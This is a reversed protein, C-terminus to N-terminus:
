AILHVVLLSRLFMHHDTVPGQSVEAEFRSYKTALRQRSALRSAADGRGSTSSGKSGGAFRPVERAATAIEGEVL